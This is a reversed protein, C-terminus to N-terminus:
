NWAGNSREHPTDTTWAGSVRKHLDLDQWGQATEEYIGFFSSCFHNYANNDPGYYIASGHTFNLSKVPYLTTGPYTKFEFTTKDNDADYTRVIDKVDIINNTITHSSTAADYDEGATHVYYYYGSNNANLSAINGNLILRYNTDPQAPITFGAWQNTYGDRIQPTNNWVGYNSLDFTGTGNILESNNLKESYGGQHYIHFKM